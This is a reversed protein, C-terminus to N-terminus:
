SSKKDHLNSFASLLAKLKDVETQLSEPAPTFPTFTGTAVDRTAHREFYEFVRISADLIARAQKMGPLMVAATAHLEPIHDQPKM